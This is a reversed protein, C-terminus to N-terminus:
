ALLWAQVHALTGPKLQIACGPMRRGEDSLLQQQFEVFERRSALSGTLVCWWGLRYLWLGAPSETAPQTPQYSTISVVYADAPEAFAIADTFDAEASMTWDGVGFPVDNRLVRVRQWIEAILQSVLQGDATYFASGGASNPGTLRQEGAGFFAQWAAIELDALHGALDWLTGLNHNTSTLLAKIQDSVLKTADLQGSTNGVVSRVTDLVAKTLWPLGDTQHSNTGSLNSLWQGLETDINNVTVQDSGSPVAIVTVDVGLAGVLTSTALTSPNTGAGASRAGDFVLPADPTLTVTSSYCQRFDAPENIQVQYHTGSVLSQAAINVDVWGANPATGGVAQDILLAGTDANFLAIRAPALEGDQDAWWRLATAQYGSASVHFRGGATAGSTVVHFPPTNGTWLNAM